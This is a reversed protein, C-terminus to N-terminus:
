YAVGLELLYLVDTKLPEPWEKGDPMKEPLKEVVPQLFIKPNKVKEALLKECRNLIREKKEEPPFEDFALLAEVYSRFSPIGVVESLVLAEIGLNSLADITAINWGANLM